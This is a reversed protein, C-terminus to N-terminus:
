LIGGLLGGLLGGVKPVCLGMKCTPTLGCCNADSSCVRSLVCDLLRETDPKGSNVPKKIADHLENSELGKEMFDENKMGCLVFVAQTLIVALTISLKSFKM